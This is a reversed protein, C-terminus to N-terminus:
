EKSPETARCRQQGFRAHRRDIEFGVGRRGCEVAAVIASGIGCFPDLIVDGPASTLAIARRLLPLPKECPHRTRPLRAVQWVDSPAPLQHRPPKGKACVYAMEWQPRLYHGLGILRKDWCICGVVRFSSSLLEHMWPSKWTGFVLHLSDPKAVRHAQPIWARWLQKAEDPQDGAISATRSYARGTRRTGLQLGIGYPPDTVISDIVGDPIGKLMALANGAHIEWRRASARFLQWDFM